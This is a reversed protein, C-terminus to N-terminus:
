VVCVQSYSTCQKNTNARGPKADDGEPCSRACLGEGSQECGFVAVGRASERRM